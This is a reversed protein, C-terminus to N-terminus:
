TFENPNSAYAVNDYQANIRVVPYKNKLFALKLYQSNGIMSTKSKKTKLIVSLLSINTLSTIKNAM